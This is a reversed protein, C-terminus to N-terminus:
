KPWDPILLMGPARTQELKVVTAMILDIPPCLLRVKEDSWSSNLEGMAAARLYAPQEGMPRLKFSDLPARMGDVVSRRQSRRIQLDGRPFRRSLSDAYRNMVSPLWEAKIVIGNRDLLVKLRRLERMMARSSSVLSNCIHVVAQNDVHLLLQLVARERIKEGLDRSLLKRVERLERFTISEARDMWQWVGQDCHMGDRGARYDDFHVTGGYGVDAADSHMAAEPSFPRVSRGELAEGASSLGKWFRLDRVAQHSLRCKTGKRKWTLDWYLARTYFRAWPLALTLAVCTGCFSRVTAHSVWRRNIAVQRLLSKATREIRLAKKETVYFRMRKSGM